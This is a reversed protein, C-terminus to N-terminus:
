VKLSNELSNFLKKNSNTKIKLYSDSYFPTGKPLSVYNLLKKIDEYKEKRITIYDEYIPKLNQICSILGL